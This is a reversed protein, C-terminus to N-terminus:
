PGEGDAVRRMVRAPSGYAVVADPIDNMVVAGAGILCGRGIQIRDKVVVGAGLFTGRGVHVRGALAVGVGLMVGDELTSGHAVSAHSVIVVTGISANVDVIAGAKLVSGEGIPVGTGVSARPHILAPLRYGSRRALEALRLRAECRGMALAIHEVGRDHLRELQERGGLIPLGAHTSGHRDRNVDDLWGIPEYVGALRAIEAVVPGHEGAGWIVLPAAM